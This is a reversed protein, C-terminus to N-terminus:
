NKASIYTSLLLIKYFMYHSLRYFTYDIHLINNNSSKAHEPLVKLNLM